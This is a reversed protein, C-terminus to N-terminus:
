QTAEQADEIRRAGLAAIEDQLAGIERRGIRALEEHMDADGAGEIWLNIEQVRRLLLLVARSLVALDGYQPGFNTSNSMGNVLPAPNDAPLTTM